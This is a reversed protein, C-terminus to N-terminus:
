HCQSGKIELLARVSKAFHHFNAFPDDSAAYEVEVEEGHRELLRFRWAYKM